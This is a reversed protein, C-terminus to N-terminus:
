VCVSLCVLLLIGELKELTPPMFIPMVRVHSVLPGITRYVSVLSRLYTQSNHDYVHVHIYGWLMSRHVGPTLKIKLIVFLRDM